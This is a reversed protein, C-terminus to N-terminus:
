ITKRETMGKGWPSKPLYGAEDMAGMVKDRRRRAEEVSKTKLTFNRVEGKVSLPEGPEKVRVKLHWMGSRPHQRLHHNVGARYIEDM